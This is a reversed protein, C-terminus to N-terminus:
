RAQLQALHLFPQLCPPILVRTSSQPMGIIPVSRSPADSINEASAVYLSSMWLGHMRMTAVIRQLVRNQEINNSKGAALAGIVGTNDSKVVFHANSWGQAVATLLGLEIAVMEAWGIDRGHKKWGSHLEWANWSGDFVVGIGFSTSADVWFEALSPNPPAQLSSGCFERSLQEIWFQVDALVGASPAWRSFKSKASGFASALRTLSVLHSRGEPLALSCHVLTGLLKDIDRRSFSIGPRWPDLRALYKIKKAQPISVTYRLLSWEFGVYSFTPAFPQTKSDKWPIGLGHGLDLINCLELPHRGSQPDPFCLFVFDDVWKICPALGRKRCIATFADAVRGFVGCASAGGFAVCHDIYCQGKWQLVFYNQQELRVLCRCFAADVDLTAGEAGPPAQTVLTAMQAFSGWDCPFADSNIDSNVSPMKTSEFSFDQIIRFSEGKPIAGLPFTRFPGILAECSNPSFPGLYRGADLETHIYLDVMNPNDLASKHNRAIYTSTIPYSVGM